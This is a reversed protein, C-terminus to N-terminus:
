HRLSENLFFPDKHGECRCGPVNLTFREGKFSFQFLNYRWFMMILTIIINCHQVTDVQTSTTSLLLRDSRGRGCRLRRASHASGSAVRRQWQTADPRHTSLSFASRGTLAFVAYNMVDSSVPFSERTVSTYEPSCRTSTTRRCATFAAATPCSSTSNRCPLRAPQLRFMLRRRRRSSSSNPPVWTNRWPEEEGLSVSSWLWVRCGRGIM